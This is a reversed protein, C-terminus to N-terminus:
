QQIIVIGVIDRIIHTIVFVLGILVIGRSIRSIEKIGPVPVFM